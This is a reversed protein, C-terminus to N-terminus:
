MKGKRLFVFVGGLGVLAIGLLSGGIELKKKDMSMKGKGDSKPVYSNLIKVISKTEKKNKKGKSSKNKEKQEKDKDLEQNSAKEEIDGKNSNSDATSGLDNSTNLSKKSSSSATANTSASAITTKYSNTKPKAGSKKNKSEGTTRTDQKNDQTKEDPVYQNAFKRFDVIGYGYSTNYGPTGADVSTEQLMKKLEEPTVDKNQSKAVAVMAAVVPSSYSTGSAIKCKSKKTLDLLVMNDGPATVFVSDNKQSSARVNGKADVAGVGIVEDYAAPYKYQQTGDNGAAAVIIVNKSYAYKIAERLDDSDSDVGMSLNIVDAGNDAAFRIAKSVDDTRTKSGQIQLEMLKADSLLGTLGKNNDSKAQIISTVATGHGVQDSVKSNDDAFNYKKIIKSYDIDLNESVIGSDIIAITAEKGTLGKERFATWNIINYYEDQLDYYTDNCETTKNTNKNSNNGANYNNTVTKEQAEMLDNVDPTEAKKTPTEAKKASADNNKAPAEDSEKNSDKSKLEDPVENNVAPTEVKKELLKEDDSAKTSSQILKSINTVFKKSYDGLQNYAEQATKKDNEYTPSAPDLKEIMDYVTKAAAQSLCNKTAGKIGNSSLTAGSVSDVDATGYDVIKKYLCKANDYFSKTETQSVEEVNAIKGNKVTVKVTIKGGYGNASDQYVGDAWTVNGDAKEEKTETDKYYKTSFVIADVKGDETGYVMYGGDPTAKVGTLSITKGISGITKSSMLKGDASYRVVTGDLAGRTEWDEETTADNKAKGVVIYSGDKLVDVREYSSTHYDVKDAPKTKIKSGAAKYWIKEGSKGNIKYIQSNYIGMAIQVDGVAVLDGNKDEAIGYFDAKKPASLKTDAGYNYCNAFVVKNNSDYKVVIADRNAKTRKKVGILM